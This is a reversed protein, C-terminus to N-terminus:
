FGLYSTGEGGLLVDCKLTLFAEERQEYPNRGKDSSGGGEM